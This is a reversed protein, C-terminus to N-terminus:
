QGFPQLCELAQKCKSIINTWQGVDNQRWLRMVGPYWPSDVRNLLWRMDPASPLLVWIPRAMAGVLHAVSTDVSIVLDMQAALAATDSFDTIERDWVQIPLSALAPRDSDRIIKQLCHYEPGPQLIAALESLPLTRFRDRSHDPSGSWVLGIRPATAPGLRAAWKALPAAPPHLYPLTAPTQDLPLAFAAPLSMMPCHFDFSPLPDRNAIVQIGEFSNRLLSVLGPQVELIVNAGLNKVLPAYRCFNITDGFGGDVSLLVTKGRIDEEGTWRPQEFPRLSKGYRASRWRWEFLNWGRVYDGTLILMEAKNWLADAHEPQLALARDCASIAEEYRMLDRLVISANHHPDPDQPNLSAAQHCCALSAELQGLDRLVNGRYTWATADSPNLEIARDYDALAEAFRKLARLTIGRNKLANSYDPQLELARDFSELAENPKEMDQLVIGRNNWTSASDPVLLLANDFSDLAEALRGMMRLAMGRHSHAEAYAPNLKLARDFGDLALAPDGTQTHLTALWHWAVADNPHERLWSQYGTLAEQWRGQRHQDIFTQLSSNRTEPSSRHDLM